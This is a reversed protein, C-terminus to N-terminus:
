DEKLISLLHEIIEKTFLNSNDIIFKKLSGKMSSSKTCNLLKNYKKDKIEKQLFACIPIIEGDTNVHISENLSSVPIYFSKNKIFLVCFNQGGILRGECKINLRANKNFSSTLNQRHLYIINNFINIKSLVSKFNSGKSYSYDKENLFGKECNIFFNEKSKIGILHPFNEKKFLLEFFSQNKCIIM